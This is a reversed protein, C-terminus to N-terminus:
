NLTSQFLDRSGLGTDLEFISSDLEGNVPHDLTFHNGINQKYIFISTTLKITELNVINLDPFAESPEFDQRYDNASVINGGLISGIEQTDFDVM